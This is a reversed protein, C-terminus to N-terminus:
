FIKLDLFFFYLKSHAVAKSFDFNETPGTADSFFSDWQM